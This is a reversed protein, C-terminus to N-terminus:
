GATSFFYNCAFVCCKENQWRKIMKISKLPLRLHKMFSKIMVFEGCCSEYKPYIRANPIFVNENSLFSMRRIRNKYMTEKTKATKTSYSCTVKKM